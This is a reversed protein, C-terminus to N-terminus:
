NKIMSFHQCKRSCYIQTKRKPKFLCECQKCKIPVVRTYALKFAQKRKEAWDADHIEAHCNACVLDCKDVEQKQKEFGYTCGNFALLKLKRDRHHFHYAGPVQKDYGCKQCKGGKYDILKQKVRIRYNIVAQSKKKM